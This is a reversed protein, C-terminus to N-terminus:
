AHMTEKGKRRKVYQIGYALCIGVAFALTMNSLLSLIAILGTVLYSDTKIGHRGLELAVFVLLAGYFGGSILGLVDPSAFLFALLLFFIGAYINAGGTRAGFRYQGAMGGAGHCMPFGGFPVTTLNMLGITRSLRAPRIEHGFLDRTLLSTALIANTITLLAQPVVLTGLAVPIDGPAPIVLHPPPLLAFGPFGHLIVGTGFAVAILVVASLDPIHTLRAVVYIGAMLALALSFILLDGTMFSVSTRLLLLALGLQIGRIVSRPIYKELLDLWKGYGMAFFLIGLILGAAAIQGASMNEAIAVVAIVKMPEIPVPLRYYFGTIIFWIGFFLLIYGISLGAVASVALVLPLITGFDGASGALEHFDFSLNRIM